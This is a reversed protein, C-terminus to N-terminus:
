AVFRWIGYGICAAVMVIMAARALVPKWTLGVLDLAENDARVPAPDPRVAAPETASAVQTEAAIRASLRKAFEDM